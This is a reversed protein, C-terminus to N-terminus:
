LQLDDSTVFLKIGFLGVPQFSRSLVWFDTKTTPKRGFPEVPHNPKKTAIDSVLDSRRIAIQIKVFVQKLGFNHGFYTKSQKSFSTRNKLLQVAPWLEQVM